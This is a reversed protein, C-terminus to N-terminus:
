GHVIELIIESTVKSLVKKVCSYLTKYAMNELKLWLKYNFANMDPGGKLKPSTRLFIIRAKKTFQVM